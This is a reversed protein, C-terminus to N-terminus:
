NAGLVVDPTNPMGAARKPKEKGASTTTCRGHMADAAECYEWKGYVDVDVLVSTQTQCADDM